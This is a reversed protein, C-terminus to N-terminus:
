GDDSAINPGNPVAQNLRVSSIALEEAGELDSQSAYRRDTDVFDEMVDAYFGMENALRGPSLKQVIANWVQKFRELQRQISTGTANGVAAEAEPGGSLLKVRHHIRQLVVVDDSLDCPLNEIVLLPDSEGLSNGALSCVLRLVAELNLTAISKLILVSAFTDLEHKMAPARDILLWAVRAEAGPGWFIEQSPSMNRKQYRKHVRNVIGHEDVFQEFANWVSFNMGTFRKDDDYHIMTISKAVSEGDEYNLYDYPPDRAWQLAGRGGETTQSTNSM